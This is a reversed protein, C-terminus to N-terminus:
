PMLYMDAALRLGPLGDEGQIIDFNRITVFDSATELAHAFKLMGPFPGDLRIEVGLCELPGPASSDLRYRVSALELGSQETLRRVLKAAQSFGQRRPPVRDRKFSELSDVAQPIAERFKKLRDVRTQMDILHHRGSAFQQQRSSIKGRLPQYLVFYVLVDLVLLSAGVIELIRIVTRRRSKGM